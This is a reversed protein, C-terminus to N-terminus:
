IKLYKNPGSVYSLYISSQSIEMMPKLVILMIKYPLLEFLYYFSIMGMVYNM